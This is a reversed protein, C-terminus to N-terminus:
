DGLSCDNMGPSLTVRRGGHELTGTLGNPLEIRAQLGTFYDKLQQTNM